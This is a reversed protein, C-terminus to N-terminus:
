TPSGPRGYALGFRKREQRVQQRHRCISSSSPVRLPFHRSTKTTARGGTRDLHQAIWISAGQEDPNIRPM